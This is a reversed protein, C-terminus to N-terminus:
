GYNSNPGDSQGIGNQHSFEDTGRIRDANVGFAVYLNVNKGGARSWNNLLPVLTMKSGPFDEDILFLRIPMNTLPVRHSILDLGM